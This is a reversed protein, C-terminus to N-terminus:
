GRIKEVVMVLQAISETAAIMELITAFLLSEPDKAQRYKTALDRLEQKADSM